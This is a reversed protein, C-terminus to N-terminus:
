KKRERGEHADTYVEVELYTPEDKTIDIRVTWGDDIGRNPIVQLALGHFTSDGVAVRKLARTVDIKHYKAPGPGSQRPIVTTGAVSGLHEFDFPRMPKFPRTLLSAGVQTKANPNSNTVPICLYAAKFERAAPLGKLDGGILMVWAEPSKPRTKIYHNAYTQDSVEGDATRWIVHSPTLPFRRPVVRRKVKKPPPAIGMLFPNPLTKLEDGPGVKPKVSPTPLPQPEQGPGIVERRLFLMRPYVPYRDKPTSVPIDFTAPLDEATFVRRVVTPTDSWVANHGRALEAGMDALYEYPEHRSGLCYAYTVALRNTGLRTPDAVSVTVKNPGPSLYPLACRNHQVIIEVSLSTLPKTFTLKLFCAYRGGVVDDFNGLDIEQWAGKGDFSIEAKDVEVAKGRARSMIYPSELRVTISAPRTSSAPTLSGTAWRVNREAALASRFAENTLDPEFRLYGSAFTRAGRENLYRYPELIPGIAPCNRYDKDGCTHGPVFKRGTNWNYWHAGEIAKWRLELSHGPGLNVGTRYGDERMKLGMHGFKVNAEGVSTKQVGKVVGDPTDGCVFFAPAVWNAKDDINEFRNDKRYWVRRANDFLFDEYILAPNDRIDAQSAVTRGGPAGPDPKWAYVKLFTDFYHWKDDYRCEVTTHGRWGIYRWDWGAARWLAALVTHQGGCLSWGYVNIMKLAPIGGREAPYARHYWLLRGANYIAVGKEDNTACGRTVTRVIAELSSCDPAKDTVVKIQEVVGPGASIVKAEEAVAHTAFLWGVVWLTKRVNM